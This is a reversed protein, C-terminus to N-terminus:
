DIIGMTYLKTEVLPLSIGTESKRSRSESQAEENNGMNKEDCKVSMCLITTIARISYLGEMGLYFAHDSTTKISIM